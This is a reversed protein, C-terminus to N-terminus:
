QGASKKQRSEKIWETSVYKRGCGKANCERYRLLRIQPPAGTERDGYCKTQLSGCYRCGKPTEGDGYIPPRGPGPRKEKEKRPRGRKAPAKAGDGATDTKRPRGRKRKPTEAQEPNEKKRPM